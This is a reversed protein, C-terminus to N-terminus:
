RPSSGRLLGQRGGPTCAIAGGRKKGSCVWKFTGNHPGVALQLEWTQLWPPPGLQPYDRRISWKQLDELLQGPFDGTVLRCMQSDSICYFASLTCANSFHLLRPPSLSGDANRTPRRLHGSNRMRSSSGSFLVVVQKWLAPWWFWMTSQCLWCMRCSAHGAIGNILHMLSQSMRGFLEDGLFPHPPPLCGLQWSHGRVNGSCVDSLPFTFHM